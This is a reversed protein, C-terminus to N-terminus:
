VELYTRFGRSAYYSEASNHYIFVTNYRKDGFIAGGLKRMEDPTKLWSSTKLDFNGFRQLEKYLMEDLIKVGMTNAMELASNKPKNEKRSLLADNDYCLSRRGSPSELACDVFIYHGTKQDIKIFEPEGGSEEMKMLCVIKDNHNLLRSAIDNWSLSHQQNRKEFRKKLIELFALESKKQDIM